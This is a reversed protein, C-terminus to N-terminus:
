AVTVSYYSGQDHELAQRDLMSLASSFAVIESITGFLTQANGSQSSRFVSIPYSGTNPTGSYATSPSAAVGNAYTNLYGSGAVSTLVNPNTGVLPSSFNSASTFIISSISGGYYRLYQAIRPNTSYGDQDVISEVGSWVSSNAVVNISWGSATAIAYTARLFRADTGPNEIAARANFTILSGASVLLPMSAITAQLLDNANGSQDYWKAVLGNATGAFALLASSDLNGSGDFGIDSYTGDSDRYVQVAPGAYASRLKRLSYAAVPSISLSDLVASSLTAANAAMMLRRLM